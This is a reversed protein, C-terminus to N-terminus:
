ADPVDVVMQKNNKLVVPDLQFVQPPWCIAYTILTHM